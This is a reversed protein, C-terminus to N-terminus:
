LRSVSRSRTLITLASNCTFSLRYPRSLRQGDTQERESTPQVRELETQSARSVYIALRRDTQGVTRGQRKVYTFFSTSSEKGEEREKRAGFSLFRRM